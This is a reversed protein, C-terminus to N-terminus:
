KMSLNNWNTDIYHGAYAISCIYIIMAIQIIM